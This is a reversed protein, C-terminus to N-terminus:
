PLPTDTPDSIFLHLVLCCPYPIHALEHPLSHLMKKKRVSPFTVNSAFIDSYKDILQQVEEHVADASHGATASLFQDDDSAVEYVQIQAGATLQSLIGHLVMTSNGYPIRLWKEKWHIKMPSFQLLWDYGLIMDYHALPLIKMDASFQVGQIDWSAQPIHTVSFRLVM